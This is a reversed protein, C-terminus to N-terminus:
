WTRVGEVQFFPTPLSLRSATGNSFRLLLTRNATLADPLEEELVLKTGRDVTQWKGSKRHFYEIRFPRYSSHDLPVLLRKLELNATDTRLEFTMSGKGLQWLYGTNSEYDGTAEMLEAQLLGYPLMVNGDAQPQLQVPQTVVNWYHAQHPEQMNMLPVPATTMGILRVQGSQAYGIVNEQMQKRRKEPSDPEDQGPNRPMFLSELEGDIRKEEGKKLSGIAMRQLGVEIFAQEYSYATRNKVRGVLRNEEVRVDVDFAGVDRLVGFGIAQRPTLYPLHRYSLLRSGDTLGEPEYDNRGHTLPVAVLSPAVTVDYGDKDVALFTAATRTRALTEDLIGIESITYSVNTKVVLPKGIAFIGVTLLIAAGPIIGWAWERKGVRQLVFYTLPAVLLVYGGWLVVMWVPPPTQVDPMNQSLELLPRAMQDTYRKNDLVATAGQQVMVNQWLPLNHQWSALPEATVDYNVFLFLGNGSQKAVFLPLNKNYVAVNGPPAPKDAAYKRLAEAIPVSGSQGPQVPLLDALRQVLADQNPGASVIVVGGLKIWEKIAALQADDISAGQKGGIALVDLSDYMWSQDPLMDPALNQVSLPRNRQSSPANAALFHFAHVGDDVVGITQGDKPYPVRLKESRLVQGNQTVHVYWDNLLLQMPMDFYVTKSKGQELLIPQRLNAQRLNKSLPKRSLEVFGAMDKEQSTITVGLRVWSEYKVIGGLPVNVEIDVNSQAWASQGAFGLWAAVFVLMWKRKM